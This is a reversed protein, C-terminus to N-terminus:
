TIRTSIIYSLAPYSNCPGNILASIPESLNRVTSRYLRSYIWSKVSYRILLDPIKFLHSFLKPSKSRPTFPLIINFHITLSYVHIHVSNIYNLVPDEHVRYPIKSDWSLFPIYQILSQKRRLFSGARHFDNIYQKPVCPTLWTECQRM